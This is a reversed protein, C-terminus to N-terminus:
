PEITATKVYDLEPFVQELYKNGHEQIL